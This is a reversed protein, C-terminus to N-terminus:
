REGLGPFATPASGWRAGRVACDLLTGSVMLRSRATTLATARAYVTACRAELYQALRRASPQGAVPFPTDYVAASVVPEGGAAVILGTLTDRRDRHADYSATAAKAAPADSVAASLVGGLLGYGYVAAHEAALCPQLPDTSSVSEPVSVTTWATEPATHQVTVAHSAAVSAFLEALLGSTATLCDHSRADRARLAAIGVASQVDAAKRPLPARAHDVPPDLDSLAARFRAVHLRQRDALGDLLPRQDPFRRAAATFFTGLREEDAIANTVLRIDRDEPTLTSRTPAAPSEPGSV